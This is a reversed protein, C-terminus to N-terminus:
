AKRTDVHSACTGCIRSLTVFHSSNVCLPSLTHVVDLKVLGDAGMREVSIKAESGLGRSSERKSWPL